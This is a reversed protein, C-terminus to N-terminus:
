HSPCPRRSMLDSATSTWIGGERIPHAPGAGKSHSSLGSPRGHPRGLSRFQCSVNVRYNLRTNVSSIATSFSGRQCHASEDMCCLSKVRKQHATGRSNLYDHADRKHVPIDAKAGVVRGPATSESTGAAVMSWARQKPEAAEARPLDRTPRGARPGHGASCAAASPEPRQETDVNRWSQETGPPVGLCDRRVQLRQEEFSRKRM